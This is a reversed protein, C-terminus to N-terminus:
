VKLDEIIKVKYIYLIGDYISEVYFQLGKTEM